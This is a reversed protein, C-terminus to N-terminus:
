RAKAQLARQRLHYAQDYCKGTQWLKWAVALWRNALCRLAQHESSCRPQLQQWYANAWVSERLSAHAWQQVIHRFQRDCGFRFKILRHKGSQETVPCTGALAQVSAPSPFRARDDGFKSLLAPALLPGTGPLSAFLQHDPHREFLSTLEKLVQYKTQIVQKLAAALWAAEAQYSLVAEACAQVQPQKLRAYCAAIRAQPYALEQAFAEFDALSLAAAAQPTPYHEIFSLSILSSWKGFIELATPYYRLLLARLRNGYRVKQKTLFQLQNVKARIQQTLPQDPRWPQLRGRDTRLVEAILQADRHDDKAGSNGFRGRNSKIVSPPIVYLQEYGRAWLFDVLLHHATEIAVPCEKAALGLQQRSTELKVLGEPSHSMKFQAVIIGAENLWVAQHENESWDIGLYLKM